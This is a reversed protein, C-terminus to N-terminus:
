RAPSLRLDLCLLTDSRTDNNRVYLFGDSLAPFSRVTAPLIQARAIPRFAQPTAQALVLEGTERVILLQDGALTVSGAHFQDTSWKVAGTRLDVARFSPNYEQRGHFGYLIGNHHVATAYHNSLAEDGSWLETLQSGQVRLVAAGTEYTASVFILDGVVLPTAANVSAASRSRWRREFIVRGTAPVLGVLGDRTFFVARREGGFTAGVASSYSAEHNTATWLVAGTEANFAVIGADKVGGQAALKGGVNAIVRGDEVLPSGSAGFYGKRVGFQRATDVNWLARGTALDIAHLQGEAGFTYVRGNVVVPVARPGEDFGFDDRYATPYAYRWQPMGTRADLSEVVEEKAVRHFLILRNGTVVPGAFGAGVQKKWVVRPGAAPWSTALPPGSYVGNRDPGLFQPWDAAAIPACTLLVAVIVRCLRM